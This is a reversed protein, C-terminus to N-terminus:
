LFSIEWTCHVVVPWEIVEDHRDNTFSDLLYKSAVHSGEIAHQNADQAVMYLQRGKIAPLGVIEQIGSLRRRPLGLVPDPTLEISELSTVILFLRREKEETHLKDLQHVFAAEIRALRGHESQERVAVYDGVQYTYRKEQDRSSNSLCQLPAPSASIRSASSRLGSFGISSSIM